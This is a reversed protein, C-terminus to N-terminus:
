FLLIGGAQTIQNERLDLSVIESKNIHKRSFAFDKDSQDLINDRSEDHDNEFTDEPAGCELFEALRAVGKDGLCNKRM